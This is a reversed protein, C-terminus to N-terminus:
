NSMIDPPFLDEYKPAADVDYGGEPANGDFVTSSDHKTLKKKKKKKARMM